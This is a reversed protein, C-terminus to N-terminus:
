NWEDNSSNRISEEIEIGWGARRTAAHVIQALFWWTKKEKKEEKKESGISKSTFSVMLWAATGHSKAVRPPIPKTIIWEFSKGHLKESEGKKAPYFSSTVQPLTPDIRKFFLTHPLFLSSSRILLLLQQQQQGRSGYPGDNSLKNHTIYQNRGRALSHKSLVISDEAMKPKEKIFSPSLLLLFLSYMQEEAAASIAHINVTYVFSFFSASSVLKLSNSPRQRNRQLIQKKERERDGNGIQRHMMENREFLSFQFKFNDKRRLKYAATALCKRGPPRRWHRNKQCWGSTCWCTGCAM